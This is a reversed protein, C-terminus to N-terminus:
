PWRDEEVEFSFITSVGHTKMVKLGLIDRDAGTVSTDM